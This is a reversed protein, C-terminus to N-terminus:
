SMMMVYYNLPVWEVGSMVVYQTGKWWIWINQCSVWTATEIKWWVTRYFSVLVDCLRCYKEVFTIKIKQRYRSNWYGRLVSKSPLEAALTLLGETPWTRHNQETWTEDPWLTLQLLQHVRKTADQAAQSWRQWIEGWDEESLGICMILVDSLTDTFLNSFIDLTNGFFFFNIISM